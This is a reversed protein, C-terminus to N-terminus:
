NGARAVMLASHYRLRYGGGERGIELVGVVLVTPPHTSSEDLLPSSFSTKGRVATCLQLPASIIPMHIRHTKKEKVHRTSLEWRMELFPLTRM